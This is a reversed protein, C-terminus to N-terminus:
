MAEVWILNTSSTPMQENNSGIEYAETPQGHRGFHCAAMKRGLEDIAFRVLAHHPTITDKTPKMVNHQILDALIINSM